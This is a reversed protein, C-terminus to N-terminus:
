AGSAWGPPRVEHVGIEGDLAAAIAAQTRNEVGYKRYIRALYFKITSPLLGTDRAIEKTSKGQGGLIVCQRERPSLHITRVARPPLAGGASGPSCGGAGRGGCGLGGIRRAAQYGFAGISQVIWLLSRVREPDVPGSFNCSGSREGFVNAPVTVGHGVGERAGRELFDRHKPTLKLHEGIDAWAFSCGLIHCTQVVPDIRHFRGAVYAESYGQPYNQLFVRGPGLDRHDDHDIMAYHRFGLMRSAAAIVEEVERIDRARRLQDVFEQALRVLGMDVRHPM